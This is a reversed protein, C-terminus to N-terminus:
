MLAKRARAGGDGPPPPGHHEAFDMFDKVNRTVLPMGESLCCAAIWTDNVPRARGRRKAAYSLKGFILGTERSGPLVAYKTTWRRLERQKSEGWGSSSPWEALEGLTVFPLMLIKNSIKAKLTAPLNNKFNLSSVDTDM